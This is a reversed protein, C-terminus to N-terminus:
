NRRRGNILENARITKPSYQLSHDNNDLMAKYQQLKLSTSKDKFLEIEEDISQKSGTKAIIVIFELLFIFATFLYYVTKLNSNEEILDYLASIRILLGDSNFNAKAEVLKNKIELDINEEFTKLDMENKLYNERATNMVNEIKIAITKYGIHGSSNGKKGRMEDLFDREANKWNLKSQELIIKKDQVINEYQNQITDKISNLHIQEYNNVKNDIDSKFIVSDLTIAGLCAIIFGLLIRFILILWGGNSLIITREILYIMFASISGVALAVGLSHNMTIKSTLFGTIFWLIVPILLSTGLLIIKRQGSPQFNATYGYDEGILFSCFRLM